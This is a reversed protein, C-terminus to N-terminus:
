NERSIGLYSLTMLATTGYQRWVGDTATNYIDTFLQVDAMFLAVAHLGVTLVVAVSLGTPLKDIYGRIDVDDNQGIAQASQILQIGMLVLGIVLAFSVNTAGISFWTDGLGATTTASTPFSITAGGFEVAVASFFTVSQIADFLTVDGFNQMETRGRADEMITDLYGM